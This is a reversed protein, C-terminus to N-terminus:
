DLVDSKTHLAMGSFPEIRALNEVVEKVGAINEAAVVLADRQKQNDIGGTLTVVGGDVKIDLSSLSVFPHNRLEDILAQRILEDTSDVPAAAARRIAALARLLDSRAIIGVVAGGNVVPLRKVGKKDMKKTVEALTADPGVTVVDRTMIESVKRAHSIVYAQADEGLLAEIWRSQRRATGIEERHLFDAESVVGVMRGEADVVPLGSVRAELMLNVAQDITADAGVTKVTSVMIESAKM